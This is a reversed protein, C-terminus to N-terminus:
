ATRPVQAVAARRRRFWPRMALLLTMGVGGFAGSTTPCPMPKAYVPASEAGAGPGYAVADRPQAVCRILGAPDVDGLAGAECRCAPFGNILLCTGLGCDYNACPDDPGGEGVADGPLGLAQAEPVCTQRIQRDPGVVSANVRDESCACMARTSPGAYCKAGKGCYTDFCAPPSVVNGCVPVTPNESFDLAVLTELEVPSAVFVPDVVMHEPSMRTYFRTVWPTSELGELPQGFGSETHRTMSELVWLRGEAEDAKRAVWELYNSATTQADLLLDPGEPSITTGNAIGYTTRGIVTVQVGMLPQAAIATLRLPVAPSAAAYCLKVPAVRPNELDARVKFAVFKSGEEVYDELPPRMNETYVYDNDLLWTTLADVSTAGIVTAEYTATTTNAYVIVDPLSPYPVEGGGVGGGSSDEEVNSPGCGSCSRGSGGVDTWPEDCCGTLDTPPPVVTMGVVADVADFFAPDEDSIEPVDPVPVVWAFQSPNGAYVIDISSCVTGEVDDVVFVIREGNQDVPAPLGTPGGGGSCFLGGCAWAGSPLATAALLWLVLARTDM